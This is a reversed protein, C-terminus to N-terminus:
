FQIYIVGPIENRNFGNLLYIYVPVEVGKLYGVSRSLYNFDSVKDLHFYFNGNEYRLSSPKGLSTTIQSSDSINRASVVIETKVLDIYKIKAPTISDIIPLLIEYDSVTFFDGFSTNFTTGNKNSVWVNYEGNPVSQPITFVLEIGKDGSVNNVSYSPGIHIINDKPLFGQGFIHVTEGPKASYKSLAFVKLPLVFFKSFFGDTEQTAFLSIQPFSDIAAGKENLMLNNIKSRSLEGFVGTPSSLGAPILIESAYKSQFKMVANKTSIGFYNTENGPSGPGSDALKTDPSSNLFIQLQRVDEGTNGFQLIRNISIAGLNSPFLVFLIVLFILINRM